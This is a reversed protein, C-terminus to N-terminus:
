GNTAVWVIAQRNSRTPRKCVVLDGADNIYERKTVLNRKVLLRIRASISQHLGDMWSEVEDCTAGYGESGRIYNLVQVIQSNHGRKVSEFAAKSSDQILM